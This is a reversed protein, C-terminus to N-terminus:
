TRWSPPHRATACTRPASRACCRSRRPRACSIRVLPVGDAICIRNLMQGLNSAAATHVLATHGELRMTEVMGLATLPNVFCSAGEAATTGPPLVLCQDVKLTRYRSYM